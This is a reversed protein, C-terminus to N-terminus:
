EVTTINSTVELDPPLQGYFRSHALNIRQLSSCDRFDALNIGYSCALDLTTLNTLTSLGQLDSQDRKWRLLRWSLTTLSRPLSQIIDKVNSQGTVFSYDLNLSQLHQLNAFM